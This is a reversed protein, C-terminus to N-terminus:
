MFPKGYYTSAFKDPPPKSILSKPRESNQRNELDDSAESEVNEFTSFAQLIALNPFFSNTGHSFVHYEHNLMATLASSDKRFCCSLSSRFCWFSKGRGVFSPSHWFIHMM